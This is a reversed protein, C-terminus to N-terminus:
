RDIFEEDYSGRVFIDEGGIGIALGYRDLFTQPLMENILINMDFVGLIFGGFENAPHIPFFAFLGQRGGSLDVPAAIQVERRDRARTLSLARRKLLSYDFYRTPESEDFAEIWRPSLQKDLWAVTM